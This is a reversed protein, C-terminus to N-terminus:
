LPSSGYFVASSRATRQIDCVDDTGHVEGSIVIQQDGDAAAAVVCAAQSNAIVTQHDIERRDFVRPDIRCGARDRDAASADPAINIMCRM